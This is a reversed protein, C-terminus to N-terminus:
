SRYRRKFEQWGAARLRSAANDLRGYGWEQRTSRDGHYDTHTEELILELVGLDDALKFTDAKDLYMLPTHIRFDRALALSVTTELSEIFVRRCDPYGSFDTQCVGTVMDSIGHSYAFSAAISLFLLNRGPVFTAPLSPDRPHAGEVDAAPQTLASDGLLGKTDIITLPVNAMAAIKRAQELEVVHRQGYDFGIAHLQAFQTKAWYLCTTSDQGGSFLVLARKM